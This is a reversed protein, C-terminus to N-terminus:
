LWRFASEPPNEGKYKDINSIWKGDASVNPASCSPQIVPESKNEVKGITTVGLIETRYFYTGSKGHYKNPVPDLQRLARYYIEDHDTNDPVVCWIKFRSGDTTNSIAVVEFSYTNGRENEVEVFDGIGIDNFTAESIEGRSM